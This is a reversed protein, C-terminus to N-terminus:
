VGNKKKENVNLSNKNVGWIRQLMVCLLPVHCTPAATQKQDAQGERCMDSEFLELDGKINVNLGTNVCM